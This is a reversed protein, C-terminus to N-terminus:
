STTSPTNYQEIEPEVSVALSEFIPVHEIRAVSPPSAVYLADTEGVISIFTAASVELVKVISAPEYVEVYAKLAPVLGVIVAVGEAPLPVFDYELVVVETHVMLEEEPRTAKTSTPVHV